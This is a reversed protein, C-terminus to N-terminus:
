LSTKRSCEKFEIHTPETFGLVEGVLMEDRKIFSAVADQINHEQINLPTEKAGGDFSLQAQPVQCLKEEEPVERSTVPYVLTDSRYFLGTTFSCFHLKTAAGGQEPGGCSRTKVFLLLNSGQQMWAFYESAKNRGTCDGLSTEIDGCIGHEQFFYNRSESEMRMIGGRSNLLACVAISFVKQESKQNSSKKRSSEGGRGVRGQAASM